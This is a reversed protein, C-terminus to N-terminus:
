SPGCRRQRHLARRPLHPWLRPAGRSYKPGADTGRRYLHRRLDQLLQRGAVYVGLGTYPPQRLFLPGPRVRQHHLRRATESGTLATDESGGLSGIGSAKYAVGKSRTDSFAIPYVYSTPYYASNIQAIYRVADYLTEALPTWTDPFAEDVSDIM